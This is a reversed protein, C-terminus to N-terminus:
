GFRRSPARRRTAPRAVPRAAASHRPTAMPPRMDSFYILVALILAYLAMGAM